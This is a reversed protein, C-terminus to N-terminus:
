NLKNYRQEHEVIFESFNEGSSRKYEYFDRFACYARTSEDKLYVADLAKVILDYGDKTGIEAPKLIRVVERAKGQLALYVAAGIKEEKIDTLLRWISVDNKWSINDDDEDPKFTFPNVTKGKKKRPQKKQQQTHKALKEIEDEASGDM